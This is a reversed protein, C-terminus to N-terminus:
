ECDPQDYGKKCKPCKCGSKWEIEKGEKCYGCKEGKYNKGTGNCIKCKKGTEVYYAKASFELKVKCDSCIYHNCPCPYGNDESISDIESSETTVVKQVKGDENTPFVVFATLALAVVIATVIIFVKKKM